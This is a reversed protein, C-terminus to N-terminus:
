GHETESWSALRLTLVFRTLSQSHPSLTLDGGHARAVARAFALGLGFGDASRGPVRFFPEFVHERVDSPIGAGGNTVEIELDVSGHSASVSVESGEGYKVANDLLNATVRGLLHEDGHVLAEDPLHVSFRASPNAIQLASVQDRILDAVNIWEMREGGLGSQARAFWLLVEVLQNLRQVSLLARSTADNKPLAEIEAQIVTLPTRLEHSAVAAFRKERALAQEFREVLDDFRGALENVEVLDSRLEVREGSGPQVARVRAALDTLPKVAVRMLSRSVLLVTGAALASLAGIVFLLRNRAALDDSRDIAALVLFHESRRGCVRLKGDDRCNRHFALIPTRPGYAARTHGTPDRIEVRVESPRAEDVEARIWDWDIPAPRAELYYATREGMANLLQDTKATLLETVALSTSLAVLTLATVTTRAGASSVRAAITTPKM